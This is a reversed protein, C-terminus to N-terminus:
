CRRASWQKGQLMLLLAGRCRQGSWQAGRMLLLAGRSDCRCVACVLNCRGLVGSEQKGRRMWGRKCHLWLQKLHTQIGLLMTGKITRHTFWGRQPCTHGQERQRRSVKGEWM